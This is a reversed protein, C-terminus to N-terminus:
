LVLGLDDKGFHRHLAGDTRRAVIQTVACHHSANATQLVERCLRALKGDSGAGVIGIVYGIGAVRCERNQRGKAVPAAGPLPLVYVDCLGLRRHGHEARYESRRGKAHFGLGMAVLMEFHRRM